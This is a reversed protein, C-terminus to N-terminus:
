KNKEATNMKYLKEIYFLEPTWEGSNSFPKASKSTTQRYSNLSSLRDAQKMEKEVSMTFPLYITIWVKSSSM